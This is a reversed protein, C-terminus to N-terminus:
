NKCLFVFEFERERERANAEVLNKLVNIKKMKMEEFFELWDQAAGKAARREVSGRESHFM